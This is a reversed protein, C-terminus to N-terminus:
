KLAGREASPPKKLFAAIQAQIGFAIQQAARSRADNEAVQTAFNSTLVNYSTVSRDNGNFVDKGHSDRLRFNANLHYNVRTAFSEKSVAVNSFSETLEVKLAYLSRAPRGHPTLLDLLHNHLEQGIRDKIPEIRIAAMEGSPGSAARRGYLPEFGCAPLAALAFVAILIRFWSM